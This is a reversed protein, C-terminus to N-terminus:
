ENTENNELNNERWIRAQEIRDQLNDQISLCSGDCKDGWHSMSCDSPCEWRNDKM